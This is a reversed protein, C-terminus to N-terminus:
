AARDGAGADLNSNRSAGNEHQKETQDRNCWADNFEKLWELAPKLRNDVLGAKDNSRVIAVVDSTIPLSTLNTLADRVQGWVQANIRQNQIREPNKGRQSQPVDRSTARKEKPVKARIQRAITSVAASGQEVAKIEDATGERLVTKASVVTARNVNLMDAAEQGTPSRPTIEGLDTRTGSKSLASLKAAIMARQSENLHRRHINHDMVFRIPDRGTFLETKPEVEAAICARYRNRGDLIMGDLLVILDHQGNEKISTILDDFEIGEILPFLEALPHFPLTM